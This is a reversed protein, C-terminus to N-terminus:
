KLHLDNFLNPGGGNGKAARKRQVKWYRAPCNM